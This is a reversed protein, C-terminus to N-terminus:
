SVRRIHTYIFTFNSYYNSTHRNRKFLFFGNSSMTVWVNGSEQGCGEYTVKVYIDYTLMIRGFKYAENQRKISQVVTELYFFYECHSLLLRSFPCDSYRVDPSLFIMDNLFLTM